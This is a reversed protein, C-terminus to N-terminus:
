AVAYIGGAEVWALITASYAPSLSVGFGGYGYLIAPRTAPAATRLRVGTRGGTRGATGGSRGAARHLM